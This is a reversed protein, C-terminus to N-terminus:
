YLRNFKYLLNFFRVRFLSECAPADKDHLQKLVGATLLHTCIQAAVVRLDHIKLLQRLYHDEPFASLFWNILM